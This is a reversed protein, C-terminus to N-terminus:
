DPGQQILEDLHMLPILFLANIIYQHLTNLQEDVWYTVIYHFTISHMMYSTNHKHIPNLANKKQIQAAAM